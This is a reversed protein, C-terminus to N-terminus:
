CKEAKRRKKLRRVFWYVIMALLLILAVTVSGAKMQSYFSAREVLKESIGDAGAILMAAVHINELFDFVMGPVAVIALGFRWNGWNAPSLLFTAWGTALAQFFPFAIDLRHQVKRYFANGETSLQRIFTRAEEFDYGGPRLDFALLGAAEASIKPLSWIIMIAYLAAAISAVLWFMKQYQLEPRGTQIRM